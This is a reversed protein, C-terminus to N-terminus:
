IFPEKPEKAKNQEYVTIFEKLYDYECGHEHKHLGCYINNCRCTYLEVM